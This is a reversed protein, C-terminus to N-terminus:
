YMFVDHQADKGEVPRGFQTAPKKKLVGLIYDDVYNGSEFIFGLVLVL